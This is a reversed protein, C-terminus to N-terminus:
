KKKEGQELSARVFCDKAELLKRLGASFEPGALREEGSLREMLNHCLKSIRQLRGSLHSYSFFEVIPYESARVGMNPRRLEPPDQRPFVQIKEAKGYDDYFAEPQKSEAATITITTKQFVKKKYEGNEDKDLAVQPPFLLSTTEGPALRVISTTGDPKVEEIIYDEGDWNSLNAIDIHRTM